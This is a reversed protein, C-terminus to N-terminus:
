TPERWTAGPLNRGAQPNGNCARATGSAEAELIKTRHLQKWTEAVEKGLITGTGIVNKRNPPVDCAPIPEDFVIARNEFRGLQVPLFTAAFQEPLKKIENIFSITM